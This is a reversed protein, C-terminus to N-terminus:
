GVGDDIWSAATYGDNRRGQAHAVPRIRLSPNRRFHSQHYGHGPADPEGESIVWLLVSGGLYVDGPKTPAAGQALGTQAKNDPIVSQADALGASCFLLVIVFTFACRSQTRIGRSARLGSQM